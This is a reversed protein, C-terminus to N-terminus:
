EGSEFLHIERWAVVKSYGLGEMTLFEDDIAGLTVPNFETQWVGFGYELDYM